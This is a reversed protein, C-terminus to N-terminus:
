FILRMSTCCTGTLMLWSARELRIKQQEVALRENVGGIVDELRAHLPLEVLRMRDLGTLEEGRGAQCRLKPLYCRRGM